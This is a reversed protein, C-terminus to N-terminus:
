SKFHEVLIAEVARSLSFRGRRARALVRGFITPTLRVDIRETRDGVNLPESDKARPSGRRARWYHASCLGKALVPGNCFRCIPKPM